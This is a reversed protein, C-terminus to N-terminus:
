VVTLLLIKPQPRQVEPGEGPSMLHFCWWTLWQVISVNTCFICICHCHRHPCGWCSELCCACVATLWKTVDDCEWLPLWTWKGVAKLVCHSNLTSPRSGPVDKIIRWSPWCPPEVALPAQQALRSFTSLFSSIGSLQEKVKVYAGHCSHQWVCYVFWFVFLSFFVLFWENQVILHFTQILVAAVCLFIVIELSLLIVSVDAGAM